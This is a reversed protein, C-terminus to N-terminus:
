LRFAIGQEWNVHSNSCWILVSAPLETGKLTRFTAPSLLTLSGALHYLVSDFRVSNAGAEPFPQLRHFYETCNNNPFTLWSHNSLLVYWGDVCATTITAPQNLQIDSALLDLLTQGTLPRDGLFRAANERVYQEVDLKQIDHETYTM